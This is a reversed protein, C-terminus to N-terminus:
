TNVPVIEAESAQGRAMFADAQVAARAALGDIANALGLFAYQPGPDLSEATALMGAMSGVAKLDVMLSDFECSADYAASREGTQSQNAAGTM